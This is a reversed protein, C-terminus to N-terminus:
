PTVGFIITWNHDLLQKGTSQVRRQFGDTDRLKLKNRAFAQSDRCRVLLNHRDTGSLAIRQIGSAIWFRAEPLDIAIEEFGVEPGSYSGSQEHYALLPVILPVRTSSAPRAPPYM